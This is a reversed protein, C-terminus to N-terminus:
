KSEAWHFGLAALTMLVFGVFIALVKKRNKKKAIMSQKDFESNLMEIFEIYFFSGCSIGNLISTLNDFYKNNELVKILAMGILTGFPTLFSYFTLLAYVIRMEFGSTHVSVSLAFAEIWKHGLLGLSYWVLSKGEKAPIGLGEMFSHLSLAIIFIFAQAKSVNKPLSDNENDNVYLYLKDISFLILFSIGSFLQGLYGCNSQYVDPFIHFILTSLIIGGAFCKSYSSIQLNKFFRYSFSFLLTFFFLFVSLLFLTATHTEM